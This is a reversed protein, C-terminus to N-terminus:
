FKQNFPNKNKSDFNMIDLFQKRIADNDGYGLLDDYPKSVEYDDGILRGGDETLISDGDEGLITNTLKNLNNNFVSDVEQNGTNFKEQNLQVLECRLVWVYKKSLQYFGPYEDEVFKIEFLSKSFPTYILDGECPRHKILENRSEPFIPTVVELFRKRSVMFSATDRIELGFKSIMESEGGFGSFDALWMEISAYSDFSSLIDEGFVQDFKDSLTRPIYILDNGSIQINEIILSEYLNQESVFGQQPHLYPNTAM